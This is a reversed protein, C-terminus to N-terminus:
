CICAPEQDSRAIHAYPIHQTTASPLRTSNTATLVATLRATPSAPPLDTRPIASPQITMGKLLM